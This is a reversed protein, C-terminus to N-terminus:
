WGSLTHNSPVVLPLCHPAKLTRLSKDFYIFYLAEFYAEFPLNKILVWKIHPQLSWGIFDIPLCHYVKSPEFSEDLWFVLAHRSVTYSTERDFGLMRDRSCAYLSHWQSGHQGGLCWCTNCWLHIEPIWQMCAVSCAFSPDVRAKFGPSVDGSTWFLPILLGVFLVYTKWFKKKFSFM